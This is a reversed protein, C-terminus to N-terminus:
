QGASLVRLTRQHIRRLMMESAIGDASINLVNVTKFDSLDVRAVKGSPVGGLCTFPVFYGYRGDTLGGCYGNLDSDMLTLDLVSVTAFDCLDVRAVKRFSFGTSRQFPVFIGCRGDTFGWDFGKVDSNLRDM